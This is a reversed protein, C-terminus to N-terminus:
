CQQSLMTSLSFEETRPNTYEFSYGKPRNWFYNVTEQTILQTLEEDGVGGM